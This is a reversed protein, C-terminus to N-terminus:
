VAALEQAVSILRFEETLKNRWEIPLTDIGECAGALAGYLAGVTQPARSACAARVIGERFPRAVAFEALATAIVSVANAEEDVLAHWRGDLMESVQPKLTRSRLSTVAPGRCAVLTARDTGSLADALLATWFRCADLVVPSQQTPRSVDAAIEIASRPDDAMYLAVALSRSLTHPDLNRPDHSGANSKRSWQWAALARKFDASVGSKAADATRLWQQYRQMQDAADHAGRALLSEAVCLTMATEAGSTLQTSKSDVYKGLSAVDSVGRVLTLGVADGLALGILAGAFRAPRDLAGAARAPESWRRVFELQEQTEPTRPWSRSRGCQRWLTQLRDLAQDCSLGRRMLYCAIITGTRGIGAHCHVYVTRGAALEADIADLTRSVAAANEPVDHDRISLRRHQIRQEVLAPWLGAYPPLEEEETLDIFSNIGANMFLEIRKMADTTSFAGPYEGALLRGPEVWYSNPIPTAPVASEASDRTPM